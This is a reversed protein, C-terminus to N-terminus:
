KAEGAPQADAKKAAAAAAQAARYAAVEDNSMVGDKNTDVKNFYAMDKAENQPKGAKEAAAKKTALYAEKTTDANSATIAALAVVTFLILKKMKREELLQHPVFVGGISGV